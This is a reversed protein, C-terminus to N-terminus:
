SGGWKSAPLLYETRVEHATVVVKAQALLPSVSFLHEWWARMRFLMEYIDNGDLTIELGVLRNFAAFDLHGAEHPTGRLSVYVGRVVPELVASFLDAGSERWHVVAQAPVPVVIFLRSLGSGSHVAYVVNLDLPEADSLEQGLGFKQNREYLGRAHRGLVSLTQAHGARFASSNLRSLHAESEVLAAQLAEEKEVLLALEARTAELQARQEEVARAHPGVANQRVKELSALASPIDTAGASM